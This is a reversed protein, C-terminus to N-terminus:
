KRKQLELLALRVEQLRPREGGPMNESEAESLLEADQAWSELIRRKEEATLRPDEVVAMPSAFSETPDKIVEDVDITRNPDVM